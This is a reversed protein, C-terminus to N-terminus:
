RALFLNYNEKTPIVVFLMLQTTTGVVVDVQIVSLPKNTKREYNSLVMNNSKYDTDYKGIKRLCLIHCSM